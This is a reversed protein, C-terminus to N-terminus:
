VKFTFAKYVKHLVVVQIMLLGFYLDYVQTQKDTIDMWELLKYFSYAAVMGVLYGKQKAMDAFSFLKTRGLAMTEIRVLYSGFMFTLQYGLYILLATM